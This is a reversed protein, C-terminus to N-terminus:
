SSFIDDDNPMLVVSGVNVFVVFDTEKLGMTQCFM